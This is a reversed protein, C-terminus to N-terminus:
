IMESNGFFIVDTEGSVKRIGIMHHYYTLGKRFISTYLKSINLTVRSGLISLGSNNDCTKLLTGNRKAYVQFRISNYITLDTDTGDDELIDFWYGVISQGQYHKLNLESGKYTKIASM